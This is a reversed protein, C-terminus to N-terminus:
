KIRETTGETKTIFDQRNQGAAHLPWALPSDFSASAEQRLPWLLKSTLGFAREQQVAICHHSAFRRNPFAPGKYYFNISILPALM